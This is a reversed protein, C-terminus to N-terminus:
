PMGQTGYRHSGRAITRVNMQTSQSSCLLSAPQAARRPRAKALAPPLHPTSRVHSRSWNQVTYGDHLISTTQWLAAFVYSQVRCTSNPFATFMALM